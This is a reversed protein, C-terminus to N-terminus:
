AEDVNFTPVLSEKVKRKSSNKSKVEKKYVQRDGGEMDPDKAFCAKNAVKCYICGLLAVGVASLGIILPVPNAKVDDEIEEGVTENTNSTNTANTSSENSSSENTSTGNTTNSVDEGNARAAEVQELYGLHHEWKATKEESDLKTTQVAMNALYVENLVARDHIPKCALDNAIRVSTDANAEIDPRLAIIQGDM